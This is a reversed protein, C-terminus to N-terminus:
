EGVEQGASYKRVVRNLEMPVPAAYTVLKLELTIGAAACAPAVRECAMDIATEIWALPNGFVGGGVATLFVVRARPDHKHRLAHLLSAWLTAEYSAELVLSAFGDWLGPSNRSYQVSCASCFVQTVVHAPDEVPKRGWTHSTVQVDCHVGVRLKAKVAERDLKALSRNLMELGEDTGMTYGNKTSFFRGDPENGVLHCVELLTLNLNLNLNLTLTLTIANRSSTTSRATM